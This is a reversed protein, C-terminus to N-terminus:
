RFMKNFLSMHLISDRIEGQKVISAKTLPRKSVIKVPKIDDMTNLMFLKPRYNRVLLGDLDLSPPCALAIGNQVQPNTYSRIYITIHNSLKLPRERYEGCYIDDTEGVTIPGSWPVSGSEDAITDAHNQLDLSIIQGNDNIYLETYFYGHKSTTTNVPCLDPDIDINVSDVKMNITVGQSQLMRYMNPTNPLKVIPGDIPKVYPDGGTSAILLPMTLVMSPVWNVPVVWDNGDIHGRMIDLSAVKVTEAFGSDVPVIGHLSELFCYNNEMTLDMPLGGHVSQLEYFLRYTIPYLDPNTQDTKIAHIYTNKMTGTATISDNSNNFIGFAMYPLILMTMKMSFTDVNFNPGDGLVVLKNFLVNDVNVHVNTM